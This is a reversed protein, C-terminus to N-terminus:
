PGGERCHLDWAWAALFARPDIYPYDEMLDAVEDSGALRAAVAAVTLRTGRLCPAGGEIEPDSVIWEGPDGLLAVVLENWTTHESPEVADRRAALESVGDLLDDEIAQWLRLCLAQGRERGEKPLRPSGVAWSVWSAADHLLGRVEDDMPRLPGGGEAGM